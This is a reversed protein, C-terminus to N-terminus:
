IRVVLDTLASSRILEARSEEVYVPQLTLSFSIDGTGHVWLASDCVAKAVDSLDVRVKRHTGESHM